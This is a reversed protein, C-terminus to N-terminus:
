KRLTMTLSRNSLTNKIKKFLIYLAKPCIKILIILYNFPCASRICFHFFPTCEFPLLTFVVNNRYKFLYIFVIYFFFVKSWDLDDINYQFFFHCLLIDTTTGGRYNSSFSRGHNDYLYKDGGDTSDNSIKFKKKKFPFSIDNCCQFPNCMPPVQLAPCISCCTQM